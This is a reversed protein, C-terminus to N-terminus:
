LISGLDARLLRDGSGVRSFAQPTIRLVQLLDGPADSADLYKATFSPSRGM